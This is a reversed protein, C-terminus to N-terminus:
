QVERGDHVLYNPYIIYYHSETEINYRKDSFKGYEINTVIQGNELVDNLKLNGAKKLIGDQLIFPHDQTTEIDNLKLYTPLEDTMIKVVKTTGDKTLVEDGVKIENIPINGLPTEILTKDSFCAVAIKAAAVTAAAALAEGSIGFTQGRRESVSEVGTKYIDAQTKFTNSTLGFIDSPTVNQVLQPQSTKPTGVFAGPTTPILGASSLAINLRQNKLQQRLQTLQRIEELKAEGSEGLGRVSTAARVDQRFQQEEEPTLLNQQRLYDALVDQGAIREPALVGLSQRTALALEPGFEKELGISEELFQPGFRRLNELQLQTFQPGYEQQAKLIDPLSEIQAQIAEKTTEQSSPARPPEPDDGGGKMICAMIMQWLGLTVINTIGFRGM